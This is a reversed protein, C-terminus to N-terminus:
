LRIETAKQATIGDPKVACQLTLLRVGAAARLAEGFAPDLANNPAFRTTGEMQLVFVAMAQHGAAVCASLTHLHRAGRATPADPFLATDGQWLTVGKVEVYLQQDPYTLLFDLRSSAVPVEARIDPLSGGFGGSSVWERFVHNPAGSDINVIRDATEVSIIDFRTKRVAHSAPRLWVRVGPLLVNALRGTNLIHCAERQGGLDVQATFRSTRSLFTAPLLQPYQM